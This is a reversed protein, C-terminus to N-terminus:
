RVVGQILNFDGYSLVTEFGADMRKLEHSYLGDPVVIVSLSSVTDTDDVTVTAIQTNVDPDANFTGSIAIGSVATSKSVLASADADGRNRKVMWSLSWGSIDIATTEAVNLVTFIYRRDEGQFLQLETEKM